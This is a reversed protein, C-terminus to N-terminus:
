MLKTFEVIYFLLHLLAISIFIVHVLFNFVIYELMVDKM